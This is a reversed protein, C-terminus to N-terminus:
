APFYYLTLPMADEIRLEEREESGILFPCILLDGYSVQNPECPIKNMNALGELVWKGESLFRTHVPNYRSRSVERLINRTLHSQRSKSRFVYFIPDELSHTDSGIGEVNHRLLFDIGEKGLYPYTLCLAWAEWRPHVYSSGTQFTEWGTRFLLIKGSIKGALFELDSAKIELEKHLQRYAGETLDLTDTKIVPDPPIERKSYVLDFKKKLDLVVCSYLKPKYYKKMLEHRKTNELNIGGVKSLVYDRIYVNGVMLRAAQVDATREIIWDDVIRFLKSPKIRISSEPFFSRFLDTFLAPGHFQAVEPALFPLLM